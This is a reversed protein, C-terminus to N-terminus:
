DRTEQFWGSGPYQIDVAFENVGKSLSKHDKILHPYNDYYLRKYKRNKFDFFKLILYPQMLLMPSFRAELNTLERTGGKDIYHNFKLILTDARTIRQVDISDLILRGPLYKADLKVLSNSVKMGISFANAEVGILEDNVIIIVNAAECTQTYAKYSQACLCLITFSLCLFKM